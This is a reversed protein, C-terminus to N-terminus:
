QEVEVRVQVQNGTYVIEVDRPEVMWNAFSREVRRRWETEPVSRTGPGDVLGLGLNPNDLERGLYTYARAQIGMWLRADIGEITPPADNGDIGVIAM